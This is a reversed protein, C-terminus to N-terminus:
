NKMDKYFLHGQRVLVGRRRHRFHVKYGYFSDIKHVAFNILVM